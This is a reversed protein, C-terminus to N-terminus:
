AHDGDEASARLDSLRDCNKCVEVPANGEDFVFSATWMEWGAFELGCLSHSCDGPIHAKGRGNWYWFERQESM